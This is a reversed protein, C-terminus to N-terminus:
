NPEPVNLVLSLDRRLRLTSGSSTYVTFSNNAPDYEGLAARPEMPSGPVRPIWTKVKAVHAANRFAAETLEAEGIKADICVNSANEDRVRPADLDAADVTYTVSPLPEYDVVVADAGDKALAVSEAIVMVLAEGVFRAKDAPLPYDPINFAPTGDTNILPLEAPHLSFTKNPIPNMQDAIFDAGTLVAIVGPVRLAEQVDISQIVAHAHPSRVMWAYAQGDVNFDDAYRGKGAVFRLDEKRPVPQGIRASNAPGHMTM